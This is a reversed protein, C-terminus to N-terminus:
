RTQDASVCEFCWARRAANDWIAATKFEIITRCGVCVESNALAVSWMNKPLELEYFEVIFQRTEGCEAHELRLLDLLYDIEAKVEDDRPVPRSLLGRLKDQIARAKANKLGQSKSLKTAKEGCDFCM